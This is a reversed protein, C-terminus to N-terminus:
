HGLPIFIKIFIVSLQLYISRYGFDDFSAISVVRSILSLFRLPKERGTEIHICSSVLKESVGLMYSFDSLSVWGIVIRPLKSDLFQALENLRSPPSTKHIVINQM